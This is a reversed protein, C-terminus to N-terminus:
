ASISAPASLTNSVSTSVSDKKCSSSLIDRSVLLQSNSFRSATFAAAPELPPEKMEKKKLRKVLEDYSGSNITEDFQTRYNEILSVGEIIVDYIMWKAGEKILMYDVPIEM